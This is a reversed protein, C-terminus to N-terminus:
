RTLIKVLTEITWLKPYEKEAIASAKLIQSDKFEVLNKAPRLHRKILVSLQAKSQIDPKKKDVYFGIINLERRPSEELKKIEEKLSFEEPNM